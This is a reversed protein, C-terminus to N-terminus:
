SAVSVNSHYPTRMKLTKLKENKAPPPLLELNYEGGKLAIFLEWYAKGVVPWTMKRGKLYAKERIQRYANKDKSLEIISDALAKPNEFPVLRGSGDGLLEKAHWYPTSIVIRGTGIAYTLSGSTIQQESLYPTVYFDAAKLYQYLKQQEVFENHFIVYRELSLERVLSELQRRYNEGQTRLLNPHTAGMVIYLVNPIHKLIEPMAMLMTEIGKGPGMLGSTLITTRGELGLPRKAIETPVLSVDAVGHPIKEIKVPNIGYINRLMEAARKCMVVIKESNRCLTRVMQYHMNSPKSLVTHFTTIIKADLRSLLMSLYEGANHPGGFLGFEHQICVLDVGHANLADATRRYDQPKDRRILFRVPHNYTLNESNTLAVGIPTWKQHSSESVSNILDRTFNAIGCRGPPFTSVFAIKREEM